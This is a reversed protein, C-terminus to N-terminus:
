DHKSEKEPGPRNPVRHGLEQYVLEVYERARGQPVWNPKEHRALREAYLLLLGPHDILELSTLPEEEVESLVGSLPWQRLITALLRTLRDDPAHARARRHIQPLFRLLLDGSLHQAPSTPPGPMRLQKELEGAPETHNLLFWAAQRVLEAAALATAGHFSIEPGAVDLRHDGYRRELLAIAPAVDAESPVPRERFVIEGEQLLQNLFTVLSSM